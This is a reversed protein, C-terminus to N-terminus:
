RRDRLFLSLLYQHAIVENRIAKFSSFAEGVADLLDQVETRSWEKTTDYDATQRQEYLLTFTKAVTELHAVTTPDQGTLPHLKRNLINVSAANM